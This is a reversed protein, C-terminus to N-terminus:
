QQGWNDQDEMEDRPMHKGRAAWLGGIVTIGFGLLWFDAVQEWTM